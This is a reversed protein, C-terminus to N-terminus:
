NGATILQTQLSSVVFATIAYAAITIILGVVANKIIARAKEIEKDGLDRAKMWVIGGYVTLVLFIVGVLSLAVQIIKGAATALDAEPLDEGFVVGATTELGYNSDSKDDAMVPMSLSFVFFLSVICLFARQWFLIKKPELFM